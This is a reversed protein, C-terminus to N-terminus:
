AAEDGGSQLDEGAAAIAKIRECIAKGLRQTPLQNVGLFSCLIPVDDDDYPVVVTHRTTELIDPLGTEDPVVPEEVKRLDALLLDAYLDPTEAQIESLLAELTDTWQGQIAASNAAVNAAKETRADWDVVRVPFREGSPLVLAGDVLKAGAAMLQGVRQHGTVLRGSRANWTIGALDGFKEISKRLGGAAVETITRPNYEAARLDELRDLPRM